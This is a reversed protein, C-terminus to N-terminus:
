GEVSFRRAPELSVQGCCPEDKFRVNRACTVGDEVLFCFLMYCGEGEARGGAM